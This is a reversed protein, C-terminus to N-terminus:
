DHLRKKKNRKRTIVAYRRSNALRHEEKHDLCLEGRLIRIGCEKCVPQKLPPLSKKRLKEHYNGVSEGNLPGLITREPRLEQDDMWTM